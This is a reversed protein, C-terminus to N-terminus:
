PGSAGDSGIEVEDVSRQAPDASWITRTYAGPPLDSFSYSGDDEAKVAYPAPTVLIFSTMGVHFDCNVEYEGPEVFAHHYPAGKPTEVNFLTSDREIHRVRVNHVVDESNRFEVEQGVRVLLLDPYFRLAYQDVVATESPIAKGRPPDPSLTVVSPLGRVAPPARGELSPESREDAVPADAGSSCAGLLFCSIVGVLLSPTRLDPLAVPSARVTM